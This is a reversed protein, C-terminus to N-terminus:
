VYRREMSPRGGSAFRMDDSQRTRGEKSRARMDMSRTRGENSCLLSNVDAAISVRMSDACLRLLKWPLLILVDPIPAGLVAGFIPLRSRFASLRAVNVLSSAGTSKCSAGSIGTCFLGGALGLRYCM